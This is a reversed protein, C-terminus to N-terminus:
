SLYPNYIIVLFIPPLVVTKLNPEYMKHSQWTKYWMLCISFHGSQHWTLTPLWQILPLFVVCMWMHQACLHFESNHIFRNQFYQKATQLPMASLVMLFFMWIEGPRIQFKIGKGVATSWLRSCMICIFGYRIKKEMYIQNRYLIILSSEM